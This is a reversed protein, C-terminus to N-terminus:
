RSAYMPMAGSVGQLDAAKNFWLTAKYSDKKVGMGNQYMVGLNQMAIMDGSNAAMTFYAMASEYDGSKLARLGDENNGAYLLVSLVSLLLLKKM